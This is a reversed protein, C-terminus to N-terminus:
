SDKSTLSTKPKPRFFALLFLGTIIFLLSIVQPWRLELFEPTQDIKIFELSFRILGYFILYFAIATQPRPRRRILLQLILFVVLSGLSEYLFTPHFYTANEFGSPRHLYDVPIGWPLSTPLGILEQNFWNGWRGIAQGLPVASLFLALLSWTNIKKIHTYLLLAIFGGFLAGHIALGGQWIAFIELPHEIYYSVNLLVEYLRAGILGGIIIWVASDSVSDKSINFFKATQLSVFLIALIAIAIIIGYWYISFPGITLAIPSPIIYHFFLLSEM